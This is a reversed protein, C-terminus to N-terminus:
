PEATLAPQLQELLDQATKRYPANEPAKALYKEFRAAAEPLDSRNLALNGLMYQVPVNEPDLGEAKLLADEAEETRQANYYLVGLNFQMRADDPELAVGQAMVELARENDGQGAYASSLAPYAEVTDPSLEVVRQFEGAAAAYDKRGLYITGLNYHAEVVSPDRALVEKYAAEAEELKGAQTLEMARKLPGLVADGEVAATRAARRTVIRIEPVRTQAGAPISDELSAPQFDDKSATIRYRGPSVILTYQGKDDTETQYRRESDKSSDAHDQPVIPGLYELTLSAAPVGKGDKDVVKGRAVANQAWAEAAVLSVSLTLAAVVFRTKMTM